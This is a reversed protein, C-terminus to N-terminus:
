ATSKVYKDAINVLKRTESKIMNKETESCSRYFGKVIQIFNGDFDYTENMFFDDNGALIEKHYKPYVDRLFLNLPTFMNIRPSEIVMDIISVLRVVEPDEPTGIKMRFKTMLDILIINFSTHYVTM